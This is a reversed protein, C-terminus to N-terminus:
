DLFLLLIFLFEVDFKLYLLKYKDKLLFIGGDFNPTLFKVLYTMQNSQCRLQKWNKHM